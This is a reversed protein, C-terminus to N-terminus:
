RKSKQTLVPKVHSYGSGLETSTKLVEAQLPAKTEPTLEEPAAEERFGFPNEARGVKLLERATEPEIDLVQGEYAGFLVKIYM